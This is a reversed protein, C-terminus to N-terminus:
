VKLLEELSIMVGRLWVRLAHRWMWVQNDFDQAMHLEYLGCVNKFRFDPILTPINTYEKGWIWPRGESDLLVPM